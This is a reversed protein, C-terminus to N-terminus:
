QWGLLTPYKIGCIWYPYLWSLVSKANQKTRPTCWTLVKSHELPKIAFYKIWHITKLLQIFSLACVFLCYFMYASFRQRYNMRFRICVWAWCECDIFRCGRLRLIKNKSPDAADVSAVLPGTRGPTAVGSSCRSPQSLFSHFYIPLCEYKWLICPSINSSVATWTPRLIALPTEVVALPGTTATWRGPFMCHFVIVYSSTTSRWSFCFNVLTRCGVQVFRGSLEPQCCQRKRRVWSEHHM